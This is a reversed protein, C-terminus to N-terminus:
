ATARRDRIMWAYVILGLGIFLAPIAWITLFTLFNEFDEGLRTSDIVSRAVLIGVGFGTWIIGGIATMHNGPRRNSEETELLLEDPIPMGKELAIVRERHLYRRKFTSNIVSCVAVIMWATLGIIMPIVIVESM